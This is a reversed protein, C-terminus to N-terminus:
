IIVLARLKYAFINVFQYFIVYAQYIQSFVYDFCLFVTKLFMRTM